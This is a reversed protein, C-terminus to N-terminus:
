RAAVYAVDGKETQFIAGAGYPEPASVLAGSLRVRAIEEGDAASLFHVYGQADGVAVAGPVIVPASLGRYLMKRNQWVVEGTAKQYAVVEGSQSVAYVLRPGIVPGAVADLKQSWLIEGNQNNVCTVGGQYAAACLMREDLAPVGVVDILREVETIGNAQAVPFEFLLKGTELDLIVLHGNPQGVFLFNDRALMETPLRVTLAPQNRQYTWQLDGSAAEFASVRTDMTRVIVLGKIVVPPSTLESTLKKKWSEKGESDLVVLTGDMLGAATIYGDSGVGGVIPSSLQAAWEQSGKNADLKFLERGGAVFVSEEHVAPVLFGKPDPVSKSWVVETKLSPKIETLPMPDRKDASCASLLLASLATLAAVKFTRPM